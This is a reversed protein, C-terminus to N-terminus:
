LLPNSSNSIIRLYRFCYKEDASHRKHTHCQIGAALRRHHVCTQADFSTCAEVCLVVNPQPLMVGCFFNCFTEDNQMRRQRCRFSVASCQSLLSTLSISKNSQRCRKCGCCLTVVDGLVVWKLVLRSDSAHPQSASSSFFVSPTPQHQHLHSNSM